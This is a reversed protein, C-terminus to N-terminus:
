ILYTDAMAMRTVFYNYSGNARKLANEPRQGYRAMKERFITSKLGYVSDYSEFFKQPFGVIYKRKIIRRKDRRVEVAHVPHFASVVSFHSGTIHSDLCNM